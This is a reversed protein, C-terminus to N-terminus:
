DLNIFELTRIQNEMTILKEQMRSLKSIDQERLKSLHEIKNEIFEKETTLKNINQELIDKSIYTIKDSESAEDYLKIKLKDDFLMADIEEKDKKLHKMEELDKSMKTRISDSHMEIKSRENYITDILDDRFKVTDNANKRANKSQRASIASASTLAIAGLAQLIADTEKKQVDASIVHAPNEKKANQAKAINNTAAVTSGLAFMALMTSAAAKSRAQSKFGNYRQVINASVKNIM